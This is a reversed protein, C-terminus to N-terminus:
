QIFIKLRSEGESTVVRFLYVSLKLGTLNMQASSQSFSATQILRGDLGVIEVSLIIGIKCLLHITQNLIAYEFLQNETDKIGSLTACAGFNDFFDTYSQSTLSPTINGTVIGNEYFLYYRGCGSLNFTDESGFHGLGLILTDNVDFNELWESCNLGDQGIVTIINNSFSNRITEVIEVNMFNGQNSIVKVMAVHENYRISQCFNDPSPACSCAMVEFQQVLNCLVFSLTFAFKM